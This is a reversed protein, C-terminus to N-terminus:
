RASMDALEGHNMEDGGRVAALGPLLHLGIRFLRATIDRAEADAPIDAVVDLGAVGAAPRVPDLRDSGDLEGGVAWHHRGRRWRIGRRHELALAVGPEAVEGDQSVALDVEGEAEGAGGQGGPELPDGSRLPFLGAGDVVELQFLIPEGGGERQ